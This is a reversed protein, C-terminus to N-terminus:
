SAMVATRVLLVMIVVLPFLVEVVELDQAMQVKLLLLVVQIVTEVAVQAM